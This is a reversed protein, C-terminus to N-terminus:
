KGELSLRDRMEAPTVGFRRRFVHHFWSLDGFGADFAIAAVNADRRRPDTLMARAHDLRVRMLWSSFNTNQSYFLDRIARATTGRRRALWELSLGPDAHHEQIDLKLAALQLARQGDRRDGARDDRWRRPNEHTPEDIAKRIRVLAARRGGPPDVGRLSPPCPSVDIVLRAPTEGRSLCVPDNDALELRAGCAAAIARGLHMHAKPEFLMLRGEKLGIGDGSALIREGAEDAFVLRGDRDVIMTAVYAARDAALEKEITLRRLKREITVARVLHPTFDAVREFADRDVEDRRPSPHLVCSAFAGDSLILNTAIREAAMGSRSWFEHHFASDLFAKRGTDALSTLRGVPATATAKVTPDDRWWRANYASVIEPDARPATVSAYSLKHDVVVLAASEMGCYDSLAVLARSWEGDGLIADYIQGVVALAREM